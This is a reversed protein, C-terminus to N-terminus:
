FFELVDRLSRGVRTPQIGLQEMPADARNVWLTTFGPSLMQILRRNYENLEIGHVPFPQLMLGFEITAM